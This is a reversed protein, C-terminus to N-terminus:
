TPMKWGGDQVPNKQWIETTSSSIKTLNPVSISIPWVLTVTAWYAVKPSIWSPPQWWISNSNKAMHRNCIFTNAYFKAHLNINAMCPNCHGLIMIIIVIDWKQYFEFHRCDGDRQISHLTFRGSSTVVASDFGTPKRNALGFRNSDILGPEVAAGAGRAAGNVHSEALSCIVTNNNNNNNNYSPGVYSLATRATAVTICKVPPWTFYWIITASFLGSNHLNTM